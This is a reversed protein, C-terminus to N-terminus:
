VKGWGRAVGVKDESSWEIGGREFLEDPSYDPPFVEPMAERCADYLREALGDGIGDAALGFAEALADVINRDM